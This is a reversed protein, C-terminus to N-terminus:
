NEHVLGIIESVKKTEGEDVMIELIGTGPSEITYVIKETSIEVLSEKDDVLDGNKKLWKTISAEIMTAGLKPIFVEKSM